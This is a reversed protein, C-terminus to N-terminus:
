AEASKYPPTKHKPVKFLTSTPIDPEYVEEGWKEEPVEEISVANVKIKIKLLVD